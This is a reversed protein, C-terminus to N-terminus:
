HSVPSISSGSRGGQCWEAARSVRVMYAELEPTKPKGEIKIGIDAGITDKGPVRSSISTLHQRWKSGRSVM